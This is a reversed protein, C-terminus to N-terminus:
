GILEITVLLPEAGSNIKSPDPGRAIIEMAISKAEKTSGAWLVHKQHVSVQILVWLAKLTDYEFIDKIISMVYGFGNIDDNHLIVVANGSEPLNKFHRVQEEYLTDADIDADFAEDDVSEPNESTTKKLEDLVYDVAYGTNFTAIFPEDCYLWPYEVFNGDLKEMLETARSNMGAMYFCFAFANIADIHEMTELSSNAIKSYAQELEDRVKSQKFYREAQTDLNCMGLYLWKEIHAVAVVGALPDDISANTSAKYAVSFMESEEGGWKEALATVMSTHAGYHQKSHSLAKAFYEWLLERDFETGMAITILGVYPDAYKNELAISTELLERAQLLREYFLQIGKNTVTSGVGSGRAEWAWQILHHGSVIHAMASGPREEIWQDYEKPRGKVDVVTQIVRYRKNSTMRKLHDEVTDWDGEKINKKINLVQESSSFDLLKTKPTFGILAGFSAIKELLRRLVQVVNALSFPEEWLHRSIEFTLLLSLAAVTSAVISDIGIKENIVWQLFVYCCLWLYGISGQRNPYYYIIGLFFIYIVIEINM